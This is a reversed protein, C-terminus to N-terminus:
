GLSENLALAIKAVLKEKQKKTLENVLVDVIVNIVDATYQDSTEIHLGSDITAAEAALSKKETEAWESACETPLAKAIPAVPKKTKKPAPKTKPAPKPEAKAKAPAPTKPSLAEREEKTGRYWVRFFYREVQYCIFSNQQADDGFKLGGVLSSLQALLEPTDPKSGWTKQKCILTLKRAVEALAKQCVAKTQPQSWDASFKYYSQDCKRMNQYRAATFEKITLENM